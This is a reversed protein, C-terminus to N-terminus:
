AASVQRVDDLGAEICIRVAEAPHHAGLKNMMNARHIEVTRPSIRLEHAIMKNSRGETLWDLVERERPSLSAIRNRAETIKRRALIYSQAEELIRVVAKQLRDERLPLRLYDFAGNKIAEVVRGPRPDASTAVVPLWAGRDALNRVMSVPKGNEEDRVLVIGETPLVSVFEAINSYIECHHGM